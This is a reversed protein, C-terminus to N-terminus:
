VRNTSEDEDDSQWDDGSEARLDSAESIVVENASGVGRLRHLGDDGLNVPRELELRDLRLGQSKLTTLADVFKSLLDDVNPHQSSSFIADAVKMRQLSPYLLTSTNAVNHYRVFARLTDRELCLFRLKPMAAFLAKWSDPVILFANCTFVFSTIDGLGSQVLLRDVFVDLSFTPRPIFLELSFKASEIHTHRRSGRLVKESVEYTWSVVGFLVRAPAGLGLGYKSQICDFKLSRLRLRTATDDPRPAQLPSFIREGIPPIITSVDDVALDAHSYLGVNTHAPIRFHQFLAGTAFPTHNRIFLYKLCQLGQTTIVFAGPTNGPPQADGCVDDLRLRTLAPLGNIVQLLQSLPADEFLFLDLNTVTARALSQVTSFPGGRVTLIKLLPMKIACLPHRDVGVEGVATLHIEELMSAELGEVAWRPDQLLLRRDTSSSIQLTRIRPLHHLAMALSWLSHKNTPNVCSTLINLPLAGSRALCQAVFAPKPLEFTTWLRPTDFAIKRWTHCVRLIPIWRYETSM